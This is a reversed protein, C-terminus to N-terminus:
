IIINKKLDCKWFSGSRVLRLDVRYTGAPLSSVDVYTSFGATMVGPQHFVTSLDGRGSLRTPAIFYHANDAILMLNISSAAIGAEGKILGWGEIKLRRRSVGGSAVVVGEEFTDAYCETTDQMSDVSSKQETLTIPTQFGGLNGQDDLIRGSVESITFHDTPSILSALFRLKDYGPVLDLTVYAPIATDLIKTDAPIEALTHKLNEVYKFIRGDGFEWLLGVRSGANYFQTMLAICTFGTLLNIRARTEDRGLTVAGWNGAEYRRGFAIMLCGLLCVMGDAHYRSLAAMEAGYTAARGIGILGIALIFYILFGAFILGSRVSRMIAAGTVLLMLINAVIWPHSFDGDLGFSNCLLGQNWGTWIFSILLSFSPLPGGSGYHGLKVILLYFIAAPFFLSIDTLSKRLILVYNEPKTGELNLFARLCFILPLLMLTKAYFMLGTFYWVAGWLRQRWGFDAWQGMVLLIASCFLAGPLVHMSSALWQYNAVFIPSFMVFCLLIAAIQKPTKHIEAMRGLIML